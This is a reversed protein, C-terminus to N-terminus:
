AFSFITITRPFSGVRYVDTFRGSDSLMAYVQMATLTSNFYPVEGGYEYLFVYKVNNEQCLEILETVNFDPKFADIPLEPYQFVQNRRSANAELYFQVMDKNFYNFACLVMISENQQMRNAAYNTADQTPIHIQDRAVMQYAEVSSYAVSVVLLAVLAGAAIQGARKRSVSFQGDRWSKHAKDYAFWIFSAAAMAIVPFLPTVYRWQKNPILTFFVYVVIFWVLFFKDEPKRRYAWLGLGILGLAYVLLSVPHVDNYPWVMEILYFIPMPFRTSYVARDQGGEQIVYLLQGLKGLGNIQYLVLVWPVIVLVAIIPLLMFKSFKVRLKKKYLLLLSVVMVLGAVVIQYKALFGVGVAVGCLILAKNQNFHMWSFFFFLSLAFFFILATELMAARSLWFFGPTVGLLISATLAVKPGYTRNAFEFLVWISLLSFVVTVLRGSFASAGFISFFGATVIDYLPPYYGYTSVYLQPKGQSLLLSGYLHPMEDWQITMYGLNLLLLSAYIVMFILLAM